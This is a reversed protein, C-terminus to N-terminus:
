AADEPPQPAPLTLPFWHTPKAERLIWGGDWDDGYKTGINWWGSGDDHQGHVFVVEHDPCTDIPQWQPITDTRTYEHETPRQEMDPHREVWGMSDVDAWIKEPAKTM